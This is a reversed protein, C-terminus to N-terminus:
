APAAERAGWGVLWVVMPFEGLKLPLSFTAVAAAMDPFLLSASSSLLYSVGALMLLVGLVRPMFGSRMALLGFPFLWLGWFISVVEIGQAHLTLFLYALADRQPAAFAEVWPADSVLILAAVENLVNLFVIPVPALAGLIVVQAALGANVAKFLRYLALCLFICIVQHFLESGIGLRVLGGSARVLEATATANGPVFVRGPVYILGIPASLALVAYLAGARRAQQKTTGM